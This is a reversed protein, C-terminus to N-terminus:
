FPLPESKQEIDSEYIAKIHMSYCIDLLIIGPVLMWGGGIGILIWALMHLFIAPMNQLRLNLFFPFLFTKQIIVKKTEKFIKGMTKKIRKKKNIDDDYISKDCNPCYTPKNFLEVVTGKYGDYEEIFTTVFEHSCDPCKITDEHFELHGAM